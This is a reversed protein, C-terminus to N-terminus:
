NLLPMSGSLSIGLTYKVLMKFAEWMFDMLLPPSRMATLQSELGDFRKTNIEDQSELRDIRETNRNVKQSELSHIYETSRRVKEEIRDVDMETKKDNRNVKSELERLERNVEERAVKRDLDMKTSAANEEVISHLHQLNTKLKDVTGAIEQIDKKVDKLEKALSHFDKKLGQLDNRFAGTKSFLLYAAIPSLLLTIAQLGHLWKTQIVLMSMCFKTPSEKVILLKEERAAISEPEETYTQSQRVFATLLPSSIM